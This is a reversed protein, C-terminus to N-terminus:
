LMTAATPLAKRLTKSLTVALLIKVADPLLYPVVCLSLAKAWSDTARYVYIFWVTGLLYCALLGVVCLASQVWVNAAKKRWITAGLWYILASLIFGLLYGGTPGLLAAVGGKFGSFVPLGLMGMALYVAVVATGKAGGLFCLAFFVAFTQMTFPIVAPVTLYACVIQLAVAVAIYAVVVTANRARKRPTKAANEELSKQM